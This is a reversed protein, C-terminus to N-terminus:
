SVPVSDFYSAAVLLAGAEVVSLAVDLGACLWLESASVLLAGAELEQSIRFIEDTKKSIDFLRTLNREIAEM